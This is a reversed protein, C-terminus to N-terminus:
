EGASSADHGRVGQKGGRRKLKESNSRSGGLLIRGEGRKLWDTGERARWSAGLHNIRPSSGWSLSDQSILEWLLTTNPKPSPVPVSTCIECILASRAELNEWCGETGVQCV